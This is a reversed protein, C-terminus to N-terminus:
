EKDIYKDLLSEKEYNTMITQNVEKMNIIKNIAGLQNYHKIEEDLNTSPMAQTSKITSEYKALYEHFAKLNKLEGGLTNLIMGGLIFKANNNKRRKEKQILNSIKNKKKRLKEQQENLLALREEYNM